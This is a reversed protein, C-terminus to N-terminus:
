PLTTLHWGDAEDLVRVVKLDSFGSTISVKTELITCASTAVPIAARDRRPPRTVQAGVAKTPQITPRRPHAAAVGAATAL